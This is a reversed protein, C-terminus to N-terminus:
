KVNRNNKANLYHKTGNMLLIQQKGLKQKTPLFREPSTSTASNGLQKGTQHTTSIQAAGATTINHIRTSSFIPNATQLIIPQHRNDMHISGNQAGHFHAPNKSEIERM